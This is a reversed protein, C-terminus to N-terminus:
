APSRSPGPRPWAALGASAHSRPRHLHQHGSRLALKRARQQRLRLARRSRRRRARGAAARDARRLEIARVISRHPRIEHDIGRGIGRDVLGLALGLRREGEIAVPRARQSGGGFGAPQGIM